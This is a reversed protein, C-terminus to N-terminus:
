QGRLVVAPDIRVARWAPGAVAIAATLALLMTVIAFTMPDLPEVAFLMTTLLRGLVLSMM